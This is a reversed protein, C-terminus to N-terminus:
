NIFIVLVVWGTLLMKEAMSLKRFEDSLILESYLDKNALIGASRYKNFLNNYCTSFGGTKRSKIWSDELKIKIWTEGGGEAQCLPALPLSLLYATKTSNKNM